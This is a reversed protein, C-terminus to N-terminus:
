LSMGNDLNHAPRRNNHLLNQSKDLTITRPVLSESLKESSAAIHVGYVNNHTIANLWKDRENLLPEFPINLKQTTLYRAVEMKLSDGSTNTLDIDRTQIILSMAKSYYTYESINKAPEAMHIIKDRGNADELYDKNGGYVIQYPSRRVFDKLTALADGNPSQEQYLTNKKFDQANYVMYIKEISIPKDLPKIIIQGDPSMNEEQTTKTYFIIREPQCQGKTPYLGMKQGQDFSLFRPDEIGRELRRLTLYIQNIGKYENGTTQNYAPPTHSPIMWPATNNDIASYFAKNFHNNYAQRM